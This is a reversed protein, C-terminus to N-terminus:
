FEIIEYVTEIEAIREEIKEDTYTKASELTNSVYYPEISSYCGENALNIRICDSDILEGSEDYWEVSYYWGIDTINM